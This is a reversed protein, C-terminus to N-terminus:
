PAGHVLRMIARDLAPGYDALAFRDRVHALGSISARQYRADNEVLAAVAAALRAPTPARPAILDDTSPDYVWPVGIDADGGVEQAYDALSWEPAVLSLAHMDEALTEPLGDVATAVVPCGRAQAEISTRGFPERLSPVLLVDIADYFAAMEGVAGEFRVADSLGLQRAEARLASECEGTGAVALRADVGHKDRLIRLAHIALRHGKLETLRGASGLWLPRSRPVASRAADMPLISDIACYVRETPGNWGWRLALIREAARSNSIVGRASDLYTHAHHRQARWAQGHEYHVLALRARQAIDAIERNGITNWGVLASENGRVVRAVANRARLGRAFRPLRLGYWWRLSRRVVTRLPPGVVAEFRPHIDEGVIVTDSAGRARRHAAYQAFSVEAGGVVDLNLRFILARPADGSLPPHARANTGPATLGSM